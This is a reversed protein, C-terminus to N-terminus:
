IKQCEDLANYVAYGTVTAELTTSQYPRNVFNTFRAIPVTSGSAVTPLQTTGIRLLVTKCKKM